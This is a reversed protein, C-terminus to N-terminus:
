KAWGNTKFLEATEADVQYEKGKEFRGSVGDPTGHKVNTVMTVKVVDVVDEEEEDQPPIVTDTTAVVGTNAPPPTPKNDEPPKPEGPNNPTVSSPDIPSEGKEARAKNLLEVLKEIPQANSFKVERARLEALLEKKQM